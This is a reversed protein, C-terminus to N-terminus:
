DEEDRKKLLLGGCSCREDRATNELPFARGCDRCALYVDGADDGFELDAEVRDREEVLDRGLQIAARYAEAAPMTYTIPHTSAWWLDDGVGGDDRLREPVWLEARAAWGGTLGWPEVFLRAPALGNPWNTPEWFAPDAPDYIPEDEIWCVDSTIGSVLAHMKPNGLSFGLRAEALANMAEFSGPRFSYPDM